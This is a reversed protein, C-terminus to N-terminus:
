SHSQTKLVSAAGLALTLSFLLLKKVFPQAKISASNLWLSLSSPEISGPQFLMQKREGAQNSTPKTVQNMYILSRLVVPLWLAGPFMM